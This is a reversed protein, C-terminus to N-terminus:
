GSHQSRPYVPLAKHQIISSLLCLLSWLKQSRGLLVWCLISRLLEGVDCAHVISERCLRFMGMGGTLMSCGCGQINVSRSVNATKESELARVPSCIQNLLPLGPLTWPQWATSGAMTSIVIGLILNWQLLIMCHKSKQWIEIRLMVNLIGILTITYILLNSGRRASHYNTYLFVM